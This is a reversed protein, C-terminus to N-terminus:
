MDVHAHACADVCTRMYTRRYAQIGTHMPTYTSTRTRVQLMNLEIHERHLSWQKDRTEMPCAVRRRM